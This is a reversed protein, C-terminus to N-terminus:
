VFQRGLFLLLLMKAVRPQQAYRRSSFNGQEKQIVWQLQTENQVGMEFWYNRKRKVKGGLVWIKNIVIM